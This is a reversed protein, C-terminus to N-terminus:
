ENTALASTGAAVTAFPSGNAATLGGSSVQYVSINNSGQNAVFLLKGSNGSAIYVPNTGAAFPSGSIPTLAGSGSDISFGSVNASGTNAVYVSSGVVRVYVPTTGAAFPSGSIAALQGSSGSVSLALVTNSTQDADYLFKGSSDIDLSTPSTGAPFPSGSVQALKGSTADMMYVSIAGADRNAVFLVNSTMALGSPAAATPFPSGVVETLLGSSSDISFVSISNSGQNAVCVFKRTSDLIMAVPNVGTAPPTAAVSTTSSTTTVTIATLLGSSGVTYESIAGPQPAGSADLVYAFHRNVVIGDPRSGTGAFHMTDPTLMGSGSVGFTHVDPSGLGVVYLKRSAGGGCAALVALTLVIAGSLVLRVFGGKVHVRHSFVTVESFNRFELWKIALAFCKAGYQAYSCAVTSTPKRIQGLTNRLYVSSKEREM